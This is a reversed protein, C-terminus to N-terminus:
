KLRREMIFPRIEELTPTYGLPFGYIPALERIIEENTMERPDKLRVPEAQELRQLRTKISM